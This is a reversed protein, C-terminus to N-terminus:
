CKEKGTESLRMTLKIMNLTEGKFDQKLNLDFNLYKLWKGKM